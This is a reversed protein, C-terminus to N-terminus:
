TGSIVGESLVVQFYCFYSLGAGALLSTAAISIAKWDFTPATFFPIFVAGLLLGVALNNYFTAALKLQENHILDSM